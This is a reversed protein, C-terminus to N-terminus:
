GRVLSITSLNSTSSNSKSLNIYYEFENKYINYKERMDKNDSLAITLTIYVKAIIAKEKYLEDTINLREVEQIAQTEAENLEDEEVKDVIFVDNYTYVSM